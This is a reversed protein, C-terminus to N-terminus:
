QKIIKGTKYLNNAELTYFYIGSHLSQLSVISSQNTIQREVVKQGLLSYVTLFAENIDKPLTFSIDSNTPNPYVLFDTKEIPEVNLATDLALSFNPIGYGYQTSPSLYRDSSQLVLQRIEKNTKNPFAQWLCAIAGAMIPCSFSTGNIKVINGSVDSVVVATGQAMVDPKIRQDYSPGISSFSSLAKTATVSGVTIVSIADAPAGIHKELADGENGASAVVIMGKSFAIEAGRSIFNTTGNMDSYSHSYNPNDYEFYGLSTTIIDAGLRDAEEAAEVWLSEEVPNESADDETIFLYYSADPATGVLANEKFGGMTSLVETGHSVGTNFNSNRLVYNYGGLIKNNVRLRDFTSATNVGPFGADLVAIIKGSGTYNQEHLIQGNLMQIQNVSTGYSYNVATKLNKDTSKVKDSTGKKATENLSKNAFDVKSVFSFLKLTNINAKTGRIHLANLWKSQAMVTIGSSAKIQNIYTTEIPIDKLDLAIKQNSRRDLARQTLMLLPTDYYVQSNPKGNFYVWAEEQSFTASSIILFLFIFYRKM